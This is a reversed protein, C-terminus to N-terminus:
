LARAIEPTRQKLQYRINGLNAKAEAVLALIADRGLLGMVIVGEKYEIMAQTMEGSHLSIGMVEAAGIGTSIVAGVAETDLRGGSSAGEIVFGDRGVVVVTTIGEVRLLEGLLSKMTAM